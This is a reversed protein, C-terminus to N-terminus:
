REAGDAVRADVDFVFPVGFRRFQELEDGLYEAALREFGGAARFEALFGDVRARLGAAGEPLGIAWSERKVPELLPRTTRRNRQWNRLVSMQDYIFGDARGSAVELVCLTEKDLLKLRAHELKRTAFLHGTTGKKVAVVRGESDLDDLSEVGGGEAALIALGTRVYPASFDISRDREATATMSSIVLDVKGTKLAPILGDFPINLIEVERGLHEGLAHAMEVSIGAPDGATDVTEFPPYALEMGIRLPVAGPERGAGGCGVAALLLGLAALLLGLAALACASQRWSRRPWAAPPRRRVRPRVPFDSNKEPIM